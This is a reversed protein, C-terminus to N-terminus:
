KRRKSRAYKRNSDYKIDGYRGTRKGDNKECMVKYVRKSCKTAM